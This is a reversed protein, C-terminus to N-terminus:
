VVLGAWAVPAGLAVGQGFSIGAALLARKEAVTEVGEAVLSIGADRAFSAIASALRQQLPRVDMGNTLSIDWKIIDPALRVVHRLSSYGAGVDDVGILWGRHRLESVRESLAAYDRVETHETIELVGRYGSFVPLHHDLDQHMLTEPSVNVAIYGVEKMPGTRVAEAIASLCALELLVGTGSRRAVEFWGKAPELVAGSFRSLAEVGVCQGSQLNVIPQFVPRVDLNAILARLAARDDSRRKFTALMPRSEVLRMAREHALAHALATAMFSAIVSLTKAHRPTYANPRDSMVKLVGVLREADRLPTVLASRLGVRRCAERDVRPDIASDDCRLLQGEQICKGSLSGSLPIHLGEFSALQGSGPGYVVDPTEIMGVVAGVSDTLDQSRRAIVEAVKKPDLGAALVEQQTSVISALTGCAKIAAGSPLIGTCPDSPFRM